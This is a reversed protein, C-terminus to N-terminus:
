SARNRPIRILAAAMAILVSTSPEPVGSILASFSGVGNQAEYIEKFLFFDTRDISLDANLDGLDELEGASLGSHDGYLNSRIINWDAANILGDGNFDGPATNVLSLVELVVSNSNYQIAFIDDGNGYTASNFQFTGNISSATIIQYTQGIQPSFGPGVVVDLTGGANLAGTIAVVDFETGPSDGDIEIELTGSNQTYSGTIDTLAPSNGPAFTGGNNVLDGVVSPTELTGSNFQFSSGSAIRLESVSLSGGALEVEGQQVDLMGGFTNTGSLSVSSNGTKTVSRDEHFAKIDGNINFSNDSDGTIELNDFLVLNLDVNFTFEGSSSSTNALRLTPGNDDLDNVFLLENGAITGSRNSSSSFNGDFRLENLMYTLQTSRTMNNNAVYSADNRPQFEIIANPYADNAEMTSNTTTGSERWRNNSSWNGNTTQDERYVFHDFRNTSSRDSRQSQKSMEAEWGTFDRILEERIEPFSGSLDVFEGSGDAALQVLEIPGGNNGSVLKWDGKRIAWDDGGKRWALFEHPDDTLEGTLYPTLNVGDTQTTMTEGAAAIFTPFLDRTTVPKDFDGTIFQGPNNPDPIRMLFPVRIGGEWSEGKTGRLPGNNHNSTGGNDNAFVVITNDAVSDSTDGDGNPDNIRDLINGVARDMAYVLAAIKQDDQSLTTNVFQNIDQQKAKNLPGHPSTFPVYLFFPDANGANNSIFRSAEDGFADTLHRGQGSSDLPINNFSPEATWNRVGNQDRIKKGASPEIGFYDRSGEWLGYFEDVGQNQPQKVTERGLHWKGVVGTTYGLQQFRETMMVQDTPMGDTPDDANSINFEYGFRQQYRGTMLGARSPSCTSASVYGNSFRVGQSSLADLNPTQFQTTQGTLADQFGFDAYGADDSLLVVINPQNALCFNASLFIIAISVLRTFRTYVSNM